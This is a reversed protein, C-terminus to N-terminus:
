SFVFGCIIIYVGYVFIVVFRVCMYVILIM